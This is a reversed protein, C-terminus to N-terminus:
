AIMQLKIHHTTHLMFALPVVVLWSYYKNKILAPSAISLYTLSNLDTFTILQNHMVLQMQLKSFYPVAMEHLAFCFISPIM